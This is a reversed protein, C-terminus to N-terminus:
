RLLLIQFVGRLRQLCEEGVRALDALAVTEVEHAAVFVALEFGVPHHALAFIEEGVRVAEVAESGGDRSRGRGARRFAPERGKEAPGANPEVITEEQRTHSTIVARGSEGSSM